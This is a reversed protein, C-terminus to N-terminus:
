TVGSRSIEIHNIPEYAPSIFDPLSSSTDDM